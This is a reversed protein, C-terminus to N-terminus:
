QQCEEAYNKPVMKQSIDIFDSLPCLTGDEVATAKCGPLNLIQNNYIMRVFHNSIGPTAPTQPQQPQQQQEANHKSSPPKAEYLEFIINCAFAPWRGDFVKYATLLPAITSDHGSILYFKVKSGETKAKMNDAIDRVLQGIGLRTLSESREFTGWWQDTLIKEAKLFIEKTLVKPLKMHHADACALSDHFYLLSNSKQSTVTVVDKVAALIEDIEKERAKLTEEKAKDFERRLKACRSFNPFIYEVKEEKIYIDLAPRNPIQGYAWAPFMGHLLNQASEIARPVETSRLHLEEPLPTASLLKARYIYAEHLNMGLKFLSAKGEDTLQATSCSGLETNGLRDQYVLHILSKEPDGAINGGPTLHSLFSGKSCFGFDGNTFSVSPFVFKM